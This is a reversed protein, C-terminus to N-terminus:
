EDSGGDNGARAGGQGAIRRDTRLYATRGIPRFVEGMDAVNESHGLFLLGGPDLVAGFRELIRRRSPADFYIMVNRCFIVKVPARVPWRSDHLNIQRFAVLRRLEPRVKVLGANEGTGGLFFRKLAEPSVNKMHEESYIGREAHELVSTDIDSAVIQGTQLRPRPASALVMAISYAEEGTSCGASWITSNWPLNGKQLFERLVAFHHMERYFYTLNTTLSNIFAILEAGTGSEMRELYERFSAIGLKRLRRGLRSYVMARKNEGLYIGAHSQILGRIRKFDDDTFEFDVAIPGARDVRCEQKQPM